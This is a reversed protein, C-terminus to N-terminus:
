IRNNARQAEDDVRGLAAGLEDILRDMQEARGMAPPSAENKSGPAPSSGFMRENLAFLTREIDRAQAGLKALRECQRETFGSAPEPGDALRGLRGAQVQAYAIDSDGHVM